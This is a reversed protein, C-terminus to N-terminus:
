ALMSSAFELYNSGYYSRSDRGHSIVKRIQEFNSCIHGLIVFSFSVFFDETQLATM